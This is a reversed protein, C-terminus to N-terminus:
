RGPALRFASSQWQRRRGQQRRGHQRRLGRECTHSYAKVQELECFPPKAQKEAEPWTRTRTGSALSTIQGTVRRQHRSIAATGQEECFVDDLQRRPDFSARSFIMKAMGMMM